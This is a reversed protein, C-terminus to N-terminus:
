GTLTQALHEFFNGVQFNAGLRFIEALGDRRNRSNPGVGQEEIYLHRVPSSELQQCPQLGGV